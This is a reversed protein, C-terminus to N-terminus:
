LTTLYHRKPDIAKMHRLWGFLWMLTLNLNNKSIVDKKRQEWKQREKLLLHSLLSRTPNSVVRYRLQPDIQNTPMVISTARPCVICSILWAKAIDYSQLQLTLTWPTKIRLLCGMTAYCFSGYFMSSICNITGMHVIRQHMKILKSPTHACLMSPRGALEVAQDLINHQLCSETCIHTACCDSQGNFALRLGMQGNLKGTVLCSDSSFSSSKWGRERWRRGSTTRGNLTPHEFCATPLSQRSAWLEIRFVVRGKGTSILKNWDYATHREAFSGITNHVLARTKQTFTRLEVREAM